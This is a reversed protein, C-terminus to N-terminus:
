PHQRIERANSGGKTVSATGHSVEAVVRDIKEVDMVRDMGDGHGARARKERGIQELGAHGHGAHEQRERRDEVPRNRMRGIIMGSAARKPM